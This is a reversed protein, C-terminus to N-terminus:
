LSSREKFGLSDFCSSSSSRSRFFCKATAILLYLENTPFTRELEKWLRELRQYLVTIVESQEYWCRLSATFLLMNIFTICDLTEYNKGIVLQYTYESDFDIMNASLDNNTFNFIMNDPKADLLLLGADASAKCSKYIVEGVLKRLTDAGMANDRMLVQVLSEGASLMLYMTPCSEEHIITGAYVAPGVSKSAAYLTMYLEELLKDFRTAAYNGPSSGWSTRYVIQKELSTDWKPSELPLGYLQSQMWYPVEADVHCLVDSYVGEHRKVIPLPECKRKAAKRTRDWTRRANSFTKNIISATVGNLVGVNGFAAFYVGGGKITENVVERSLNSRIEEEISQTHAMKKRM